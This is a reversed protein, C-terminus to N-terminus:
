HLKTVFYLVTFISMVSVSHLWQGLSYLIVEPQRPFTCCLHVFHIEEILWPAKGTLLNKRTNWYECNEEESSILLIMSFWLILVGVLSHWLNIFLEKPFNNETTLNEGEITVWRNRVSIQVCRFYQKCRRMMKVGRVCSKCICNKTWKLSKQRVFFVSTEM